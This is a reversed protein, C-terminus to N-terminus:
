YNSSVHFLASELRACVEEKGLLQLMGLLDVGAGQGSVFVRILQMVEGPKKNNGAATQKIAADISEITFPDLASFSQHLDNFFATLEPKWKKSIVQQDYTDPREFLYRGKEFMESEFQVRDILLEVAKELFADSYSPNSDGSKIQSNVSTKLNQTLKVIPQKRLYQENFWKAKEPDFRAGAKHVHAFSFQNILEEMSFLEQETGPNWGLLALMNVFAEPYYGRERYGVSVEGSAPDTWQLPFVPFGLRDGDRKSLKGNGDPKLLLPLHAYEPQRDSWGLFKYILQHAPASPLWEEGRITHTIEMLVDDIIHAMHYTPMGDSKLLVKDDVLDSQFTVEGRIIDNFTISEGSPVKLRIVYPSGSAKLDNCESESLTLSNRMSDRTEHNYQPAVIGASTLRTRMLELEEPTDFAYYAHGSEVLQLAYKEYIGQEKRESQRYPAFRGGVPVGEDIQIGSWKLAEIIYEEAGPVFRNQDTDEIRLLFDGGQQKAFLYNFLATRVGGMHLPGTPSPAFRTRVRKSMKLSIESPSILHIEGAPPINLEIQAPDSM